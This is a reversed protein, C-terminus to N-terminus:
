GDNKRGGKNIKFVGRWVILFITVAAVYVAIGIIIGSM